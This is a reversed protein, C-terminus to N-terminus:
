RSPPTSSAWPWAWCARDAPGPGGAGPWGTRRSMLVLSVGALVAFLAAARGDVLQARATLDGDPTREDLVHAAVMGLLALCRAVDLGVLRATPM